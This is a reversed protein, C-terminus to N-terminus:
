WKEEVVPLGSVAKGLMVQAAHELTEGPSVVIPKRAMVNEVKLGPGKKKISRTKSDGMAARVDSRTVIGVLKGKHVVPLRRIAKRRMLKAAERIPMEPGCTLAPQSMWNRVFM